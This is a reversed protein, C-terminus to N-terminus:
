LMRYNKYSIMKSNSIVGKTKERKKHKPLFPKEKVDYEPLFFFSLPLHKYCDGDILLKWQM